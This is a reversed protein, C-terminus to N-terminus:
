ATLVHATDLVSAEVAIPTWGFDSRTNSTDLAKPYGNARLIGAIDILTLHSCATLGTSTIVARSVGASTAAELVRLTGDVAPAPLEQEDSM